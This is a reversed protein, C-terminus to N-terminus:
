GKFQCEKGYYTPDPSFHLLDHIDLNAHSALGWKCGPGSSNNPPWGGGGGGLDSGTGMDKSIM